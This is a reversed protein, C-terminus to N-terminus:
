IRPTLFKNVYLTIVQEFSDKKTLFEKVQSQIQEFYEVFDFFLDKVVLSVEPHHRLYKATWTYMRTTVYYDPLPKDLLYHLRRYQDVSFNTILTDYVSMKLLQLNPVLHLKGIFNEREFSSDFSLKFTPETKSNSKLNTNIYSQPRCESDIICYMYIVDFMDKLFVIDSYSFVIFLKENIIKYQHSSLVIEQLVDTLEFVECSISDSEFQYFTSFKWNHALDTIYIFNKKSVVPTVPSLSKM